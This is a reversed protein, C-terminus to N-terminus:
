DKCNYNINKLDKIITLFMIYILPFIKTEQCIKKFSNLKIINDIKEIERLSNIGISFIIM